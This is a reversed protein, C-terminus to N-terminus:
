RYRDYGHFGVAQSKLGLLNCSTFTSLNSEKTHYVLQVLFSCNHGVDSEGVLPVLRREDKLQDAMIDYDEAVSSEVLMQQSHYDKELADM